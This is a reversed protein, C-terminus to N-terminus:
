YTPQVPWPLCPKLVWAWLVQEVAGWKLAKLRMAVGVGMIATSIWM